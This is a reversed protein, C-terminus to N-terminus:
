VASPTFADSFFQNKPAGLKECALEFMDEIMQPNGCAYVEHDSLDTFDNAVAKTVYGQFYEEHISKSLCKIVKINLKEQWRNINEQLYFDELNRNGWYLSIKRTDDNIYIHELISKIPGFGTGTCVLLIPKDSKQLKFAGLPGKFRIISDTKLENWAYESFLGGKHYKVHFELEQPHKPSSAISYSRTQGKFMMEVYQGAHFGFTLNSPLKLTIILTNHIKNVDLIKAPLIKIPFGDLVNPIDLVLDSSPHAKCLLTYGQRIDDETLTKPNYVDLNVAGSVLKSKCAGCVGNKCSHPLNLKQLLGADLVTDNGSVNFEINDPIITIKAM